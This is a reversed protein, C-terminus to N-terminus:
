GKANGRRRKRWKTWLHRALLAPPMKLWHSRVYLGFGALRALVGPTGPGAAGLTTLVLADMLARAAGDPLAPRLAALSPM